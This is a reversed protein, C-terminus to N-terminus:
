SFAVTRLAAEFCGRAFKLSEAVDIALSQDLDCSRYLEFWVTEPWVPLAVQHHSFIRRVFRLVEDYELRGDHNSDVHAFTEATVRKSGHPQDWQLLIKRIRQAQSAESGETQKRLEDIKIELRVIQSKYLETNQSKNEIVDRITFSSKRAQDTDQTLEGTQKDLAVSSLRLEELRDKQSKLTNSQRMEEETPEGCLKRLAHVREVLGDLRGKHAGVEESTEEVFHQYREGLELAERNHRIVSPAMCPPVFASADRDGEPSLARAALRPSAGDEKKLANATAHFGHALLTKTLVGQLDAMSLPELDKLRLATDLEKLRSEAASVSQPVDVVCLDGQVQELYQNLHTSHMEVLWDVLLHDQEPVQPTGFQGITSYFHKAHARLQSLTLSQLHHKEYLPLPIGRYYVHPVVHPAAQSRLPHLHVNHVEMLWEVLLEDNAPM